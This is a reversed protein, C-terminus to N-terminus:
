IARQKAKDLGHPYQSSVFEESMTTNDRRECTVNSCRRAVNVGGTGVRSRAGQVHVYPPCNIEPASRINWCLGAIYPGPPGYIEPSWINRSLVQWALRDWGGHHLICTHPDNDLHSPAAAHMAHHQQWTTSLPGRDRYRSDAYTKRIGIENIFHM